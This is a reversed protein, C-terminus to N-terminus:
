AEKTLKQQGAAGKLEKCAKEAAKLLEKQLGIVTALLTAIPKKGERFAKRAEDLQVKTEAEDVKSITGKLESLAMLSLYNKCPPAAAAKVSAAGLSVDFKRLYGECTFVFWLLWIKFEDPADVQLRSVVEARAQLIEMEEQLKVAVSPPLKTM